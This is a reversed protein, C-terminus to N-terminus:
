SDGVRSPGPPKLGRDMALNALRDAARNEARPVHRIRFSELGKIRRTAELHLPQLNAAKVRYVGTIQRQLLQSDTRVELATVGLRCALALV